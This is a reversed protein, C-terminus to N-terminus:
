FEYANMREGKVRKVRGRKGKRKKRLIRRQAGEDDAVKVSAACLESV